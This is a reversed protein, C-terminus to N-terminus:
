ATQRGRSGYIASAAADRLVSISEIDQQTLTRLDGGPM